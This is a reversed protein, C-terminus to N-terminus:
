GDRDAGGTTGERNRRAMRRAKGVASRMLTRHERTLKRTDFYARLFRIADTRSTAVPKWSYVLQALDKVLWRRRWRKRHQVRQLDILFLKGPDHPCVFLHCLYLDRHNFGAGHFRRVFRGVDRALEPMVFSRSSDAGTMRKDHLSKLYDDLPIAGPLMETFVVSRGTSPDDTLVAPHPTAVGARRLALTNDWEILAAGAGRRGPEDHAKGYFTVVRGEDDPLRLIMNTRWEVTRLVEVEPREAVSLLSSQTDLGHRRLLDRYRRNVLVRGGDLTEIAPETLFDDRAM